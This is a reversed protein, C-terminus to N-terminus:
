PWPRDRSVTQSSSLLSIEDNGRVRSGLQVFVHMEIERGGDIQESRLPVARELGADRGVEEGADLLRTVAEHAPERLLVADLQEDPELLM